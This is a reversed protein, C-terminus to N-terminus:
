PNGAVIQRHDVRQPSSLGGSSMTALKAGRAGRLPRDYPVPDVDTGVLQVGGHGAVLRPSVVVAGARSCVREGEGIRRSILWRPRVFM